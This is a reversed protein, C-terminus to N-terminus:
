LMDVLMVTLVVPLYILSVLFLRRAQTRGPRLVLAVGFALFGLGCILATFFYAVGSIGLMTPLGGLPVLLLCGILVQRFTRQGTPDLVPLMPFGARAYDDRYLWAIALFHPVQWAFMIAFALWAAAGLDGTVAAYGIMPPMAGPVAGVLLAMPSYRKMPTYVLVYSVITFASLAAALWTTTLALLAVGLLGLATGFWIAESAGIRGAPLPRSMTREMMGDTEREIVQNLVSAGMCSLATGFLTGLLTLWSWVGPALAFGAAATIVVMLTIRPKTLATYDARRTVPDATNAPGSEALPLSAPERGTLQSM